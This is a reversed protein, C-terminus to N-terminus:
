HNYHIFELYNRIKYKLEKPVKYKFFIRNFNRRIDIYTTQKQTQKEIIISAKGALYGFLGSALVMSFIAIIREKVCIPHIDGYGVTMMTTISFYLTDVYLEQM